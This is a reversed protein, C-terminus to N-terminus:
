PASRHPADYTTHCSLRPFAVSAGDSTNAMRPNDSYGNGRMAVLMGTRWLRRHFFILNGALPFRGSSHRSSTRPPM